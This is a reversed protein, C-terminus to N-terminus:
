GTPLPRDEGGGVEVVEGVDGAEVLTCLIDGLRPAVLLGAGTQGEERYLGRLSLSLFIFDATGSLLSLSLFM